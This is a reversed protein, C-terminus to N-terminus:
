MKTSLIIRKMLQVNANHFFLLEQSLSNWHSLITWIQKSIAGGDEQLRMVGLKTQFQHTLDASDSCITSERDRGGGLKYGRAMRFCIESYGM